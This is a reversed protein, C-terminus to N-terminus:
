IFFCMAKDSGNRLRSELFFRAWIMATSRPLRVVLATKISRRPSIRARVRYARKSAGIKSFFIEGSSSASWKRETASAKPFVVLNIVTATPKFSASTRWTSIGCIGKSSIRCM